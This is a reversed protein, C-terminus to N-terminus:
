REFLSTLSKGLAEAIKAITDLTPNFNGSEIRSIHSQTVGTRMALQEQSIGKKIRIRRINKGLLKKADM